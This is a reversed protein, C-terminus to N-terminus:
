QKGGRRLWRGLGRSPKAEPLGSGQQVLDEGTAHELVRSFAENLEHYNKTAVLVGENNCRKWEKTEPVGGLFPWEGLERRAEDEDIGIDDEARNLVIGITNPDIGMGGAHVPATIQRLWSDTNMLTPVNPTAVVVIFDARPLAFARFIDHYLEAVPTDIIIYDFHPKLADLIESYRKGTYYLPNAVEPSAPGLLASMNLQPMDVLHDLIRDPHIATPDKLLGEINPSWKNLYKGTDAQQVNADIICVNRGTGRLRLGLYAALNLSVSSKGTGGKPATVTIVHGRRAPREAVQVGARAVPAGTDLDAGFAGSSPGGFAPAGGGAPTGFPASSAGAPQGFPTAVAAAPAQGFPAAAPEQAPAPQGFPSTSFAPHAAPAAQGFPTTVPAASPAAAPAQSFAAPQAPTSQPFSPPQVVVPEPAAAPAQGFPAAGFAPAPASQTIPKEQSVVVPVVPAQASPAAPAPTRVGQGFAPAAGFAPAPQAAAPAGGGFAPAPATPQAPAPAPAAAPAATGFPHSPAAAPAAMGPLAIEINNAAPQLAPLDPHGSLAGLVQNLRLPGELLGAGPCQRVLDAGGPTTAIILVPTRMAVLRTILPPLTVDTDVPTVDAFIFVKGEPGALRGSSILAQLGSTSDVRLVDVFQRTSALADVLAPVGVVVITLSPSM